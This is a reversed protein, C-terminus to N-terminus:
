LCCVAGDVAVPEGEGAFINAFPKVGSACVYDPEFIAGNGIDGVITGGQEQCQASTLKDRDAPNLAPAQNADDPNKGSAPEVEEGGSESEEAGTSACENLDSVAVTASDILVWNFTPTETTNGNADVDNKDEDIFSITLADEVRVATVGVNFFSFENGSEPSVSIPDGVVYCNQGNATAIGDQQYDYRTLVGDNSLNWYVTDSTEGAKVSGDWLGAILSTDGGQKGDDTQGAADDNVGSQLNSNNTNDSSSCGALTLAASITLCKFYTYNKM